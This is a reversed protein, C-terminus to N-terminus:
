GSLAALRTLVRRAHSHHSATSGPFRTLNGGVSNHTIVWALGDRNAGHSVLSRFECLIPNSPNTQPYLTSACQSM